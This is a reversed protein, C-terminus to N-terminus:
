SVTASWRRTSSRRWQRPPCIRDSAIHGILAAGQRQNLRALRLETVHAEGIWPAQFMPRHTLMLMVPHSAMRAILLDLLECTTPDAWHVDELLALVPQAQALTELRRWLLELLRERQTRPDVTALAHPNSPAVGLLSAVLRVDDSTECSDGLLTGLKNFKTRQRITRNSVPRGNSSLSSRICSATSFIRCASGIWGSM